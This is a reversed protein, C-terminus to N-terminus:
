FQPLLIFLAIILKNIPHKIKPPMAHRILARREHLPPEQLTTFIIGHLAHLYPSILM